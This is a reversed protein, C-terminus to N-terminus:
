ATEKHLPSPLGIRRIDVGAIIGIAPQREPGLTMHRKGGPNAGEAELLRQYSFPASIAPDTANYRRELQCRCDAGIRLGITITEIGKVAAAGGAGVAAWGAGNICGPLHHLETALMAVALMELLPPITGTTVAGGKNGARPLNRGFYSFCGYM